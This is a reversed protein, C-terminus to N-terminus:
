VKSPRLGDAEAAAADAYCRDANTRAYNVGSPPHYIGSGLKAKIPFALPCSGDDNPDASSPRAAGGSSAPRPMPPFPFPATSWDLGSPRKPVRANWARWAAFAASGLIAAGIAGKLSRRM